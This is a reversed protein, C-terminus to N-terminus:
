ASRRRAGLGVLALAVLMLTGPEPVPICTAGPLCGDSIIHYTM